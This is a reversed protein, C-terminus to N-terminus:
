PVKVWPRGKGRLRRHGEARRIVQREYEAPSMGGRAHLAVATAWTSLPPLFTNLHHALKLYLEASSIREPPGDQYYFRRAYARTIRMLYESPTAEDLRRKLPLEAQSNPAVLLGQSSGLPRAPCTETVHAM